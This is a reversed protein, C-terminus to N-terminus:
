VIRTKLFIPIANKPRRVTGETYQLTKPTNETALVDFNLLIKTLALKM